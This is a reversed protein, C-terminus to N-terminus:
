KHGAAIQTAIELNVVRLRKAIRNRSAVCTDIITNLQEIMLLGFDRHHKIQDCVPKIPLFVGPGVSIDQTRVLDKQYDTQYEAACCGDHGDILKELVSLANCHAAATEAVVNGAILINKVNTIKAALTMVESIIESSQGFCQEIKIKDDQTATTNECDYALRSLTASLEILRRVWNVLELYYGHMRKELDILSTLETSTHSYCGDTM